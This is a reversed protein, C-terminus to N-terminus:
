KSITGIVTMIDGLNIRVPMPFPTKKPFGFLFRLVSGLNYYKGKHMVSVVSFGHKELLLSLTRPSYYYTHFPPAMMRWRKGFLKAQFSNIDSTTILIGGNRRLAQSAKRIVSDPDILHEITDLLCVFDYQDDLPATLFDVNLVNMGFKSKAITSAHESIEFGITEWDREKACKLFFGFSSGIELLKGKPSINEIDDLIRRSNMEHIKQDTEYNIYVDSYYDSEYIRLLDEEKVDAFVLGCRQCRYIDFGKVNWLLRKETNGCLNCTM